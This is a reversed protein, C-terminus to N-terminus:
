AFNLFVQTIGFKGYFRMFQGNIDVKIIFMKEMQKKYGHWHLEYYTIQQESINERNMVYM